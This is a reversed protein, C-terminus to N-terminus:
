TGLSTGARAACQRCDTQAPPPLCLLLLWWLYSFFDMQQWADFNDGDSTERGFGRDRGIAAGAEEEPGILKLPPIPSFPSRHVWSRGM